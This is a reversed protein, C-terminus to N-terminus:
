LASLVGSYAGVTYGVLRKGTGSTADASVIEQLSPM